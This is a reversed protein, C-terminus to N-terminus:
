LNEGCAKCIPNETTPHVFFKGDISAKCSSCKFCGPHFLGMGNVFQRTAHSEIAKGCGNCTKDDNMTSIATKAMRKASGICETHCPIGNEVFYATGNFPKHCKGCVFCRKHYKEKTSGQGISVVPETTGSLSKRCVPCDGVDGSDNDVAM